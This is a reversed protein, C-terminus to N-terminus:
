SPRLLVGLRVASVMAPTVTAAGMAVQSANEATDCPTNWREFMLVADLPDTVVYVLAPLMALLWGRYQLQSLALIRIYRTWLGFGSQRIKESM